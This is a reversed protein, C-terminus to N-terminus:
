RGSRHAGGAGAGAGGGAPLSPLMESSWPCVQHLQNLHSETLAGVGGKSGNFDGAGPGALELARAALNEVAAHRALAGKSGGPDSAGAAGPRLVALVTLAWLTNAAGQATFEGATAAVRAALAEEAGAQPTRLGAEPSIAALRARRPVAARVTRGSPARQAGRAGRAGRTSMPASKCFHFKEVKAFFFNNWKQL